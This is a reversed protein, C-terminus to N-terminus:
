SVSDDNVDQRLKEQDMRFDRSVSAKLKFDIKCRSGIKILDNEFQEIKFILNPITRAEKNIVNRTASDGKKKSANDDAM